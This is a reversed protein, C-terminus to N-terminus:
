YECIIEVKRAAAEIEASEKAALLQEKASHCQSADRQIAKAVQPSPTIGECLVHAVRRVNAYEGRELSVCDGIQLYGKETIFRSVSMDQFRLTYEYGRREGELAQVALAGLAAGGIGAAVQRGTSSRSGLMLGTFGGVMAGAPASSPLKVRAIETVEAYRVRMEYGRSSSTGTSNCATLLTMAITSLAIPYIKM